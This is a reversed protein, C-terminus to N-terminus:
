VKTGGLSIPHSDVELFDARKPQQGCVEFWLVHREGCHRFVLMLRREGNPCLVNFPQWDSITARCQPCFILPLGGIEHDM